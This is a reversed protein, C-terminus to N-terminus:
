GLIQEVLRQLARQVQGVRQRARLLGRLEAGVGVPLHALGRERGLQGRALALQGGLGLGRGVRLRHELLRQRQQALPQRLGARLGGLGPQRGLQQRGRLRRAAEGLLRRGVGGRGHLGRALRQVRRLASLGRRRGRRPGALRIARRGPLGALGLRLALRRRAALRLPL